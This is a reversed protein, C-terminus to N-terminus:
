AILDIHPWQVAVQFIPDDSEDVMGQRNHLGTIHLITAGAKDDLKGEDATAYLIAGAAIDDDARASGNGFVLGWGYAGNALAVQPICLATALNADDTNDFPRVRWNGEMLCTDYAAVAESAQVVVYLGGDPSFALTGPQLGGVDDLSSGTDEPNCGLAALSM